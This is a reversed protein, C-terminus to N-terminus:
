SRGTTVRSKCALESGLIVLGAFSRCDRLLIRYDYELVERLSVLSRSGSILLFNASSPM